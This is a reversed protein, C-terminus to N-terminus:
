APPTAGSAARAVLASQLAAHLIAATSDISEARARDGTSGTRLSHALTTHREIADRIGAHAPIAGIFAALVDLMADVKSELKMVRLLLEAEIM